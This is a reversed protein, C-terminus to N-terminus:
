DKRTGTERKKTPINNIKRLRLVDVIENEMSLERYRREIQSRSLIPFETNQVKSRSKDKLDDSLLWDALKVLDKSPPRKGKEEIYQAIWEDAHKNKEDVTLDPLLQNIFDDVTLM